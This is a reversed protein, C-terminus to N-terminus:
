PASARVHVHLGLADVKKELREMDGGGTERSGARPRERGNVSNLNTLNTDPSEASREGKVDGKMDNIHKKKFASWSEDRLLQQGEPMVSHSLRLEPALPEPQSVSDCHKTAHAVPLQKGLPAHGDSRIARPAPPGWSGPSAVPINGSSPPQKKLVHSHLEEMSILLWKLVPLVAQSEKQKNFIAKNVNKVFFIKLQELVLIRFEELSMDEGHMGMSMKMDHWDDQSIYLNCNEKFGDHMEKFSVRRNSDADIKHFLATISQELDDSSRFQSLKEMLPDLAHAEYIEHGLHNDSRGLTMAHLVEDLLVAVVINTLVMAGLVMFSVFYLTAVPELDGQRLDDIPVGWSDMSSLFRVHSSWNEGTTCEFMTFLSRFFSGFAEPYKKSFLQVGM